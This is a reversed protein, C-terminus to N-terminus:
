ETEESELFPYRLLAKKLARNRLERPLTLIRVKVLKFYRKVENMQYAFDQHKIKEKKVAELSRM